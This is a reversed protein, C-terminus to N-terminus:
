FHIFQSFAIKLFLTSFSAPNIADCIKAPLAHHIRRSVLWHILYQVRGGLLLHPSRIHFYKPIRFLVKFIRLLLRICTWFPRFSLLCILAVPQRVLMSLHVFFSGYSLVFHLRFSMSCSFISSTHCLLTQCAWVREFHFLTMCSYFEIACAVSCQRTYVLLFGVRVAAKPSFDIDLDHCSHRLVKMGGGLQDLKLMYSADRKYSKATVLRM